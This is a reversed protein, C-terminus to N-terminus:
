PALRQIKWFENELIFEIRDHLRNSRGQWFEFYTPTVEYGGWNEPRKLDKENGSKELDSAKKDLSERSDIVKSQPSVIAGIKSGVPRSAFYTDSSTIDTKQALGEIRAQRELEPWFFTLAVNNNIGINKGKRSDYNTFFVLGRDTIEKLLVIRSSPKNSASVSALNMATPEYIKSDIAENIWKKLQAIPNKDIEEENLNNFRYDNRISSFKNEESM